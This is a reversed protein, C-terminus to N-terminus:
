PEDEQVDPAVKTEVVFTRKGDLVIETADGERFV